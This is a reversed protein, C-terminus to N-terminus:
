WLHCYRMYEAIRFIFDKGDRTTIKLVDGQKLESQLTETQSELVRTSTCSTSFLFSIIVFLIITKGAFTNVM